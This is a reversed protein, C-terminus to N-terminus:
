TRPSPARRQVGSQVEKKFTCKEQCPHDVGFTDELSIISSAATLKFHEDEDGYMCDDVQMPFTQPKRSGNNQFVGTNLADRSAPKFQDTSDTEEFVM